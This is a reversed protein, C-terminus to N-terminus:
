KKRYQEWIEDEKNNWVKELSLETFKIIDKFDDKMGEAIKKTKELLIKGDAEIVILIDGKKIGAAERISTPIAIQGKETVTVVSMKM